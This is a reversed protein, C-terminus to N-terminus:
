LHTCQLFLGMQTKVLPLQFHKSSDSSSQTAIAVLSQSLSKVDNDGNDPSYMFSLDVGFNSSLNKRVSLQFFQNEVFFDETTGYSVM